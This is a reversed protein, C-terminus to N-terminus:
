AAGLLAAVIFFKRLRKVESTQKKCWCGSRIKWSGLWMTGVSKPFAQMFQAAEAGDSARHAVSITAKM